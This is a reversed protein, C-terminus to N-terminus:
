SGAGGVAADAAPGFEAELSKLRAKDDATLLIRALGKDRAKELSRKAATKDGAALEAAALHLYKSATPQLLAEQLDEVAAANDGGALQVLGRTDLLDPLHGLEEIASDILRRAEAATGGKALHFALNNSVIASQSANLDGEELLDRYIKEAESDRGQLTRWEADLLLIVVSGPDVRKAKEIWDGVREFAPKAKGEDVQSRLVQIALSLARELSLSDWHDKILDLAEDTRGQRGLYEIRATVGAAALEAYREFVRDAAKQFGLDEMLMAVAQLQAPNEASAEGDPMLRRAFDIAQERNNEAMALKASLALTIASDPASRELRRLWTRATSAEGHEIMKEVLFAIYAPPTKPSAVIAVLENRAADWDGAKERLQARLLRNATSLPQRDGLMDLCQIARKWSVPEPRNSLLTIELNLDDLSIEDGARNEELRKLARELDRYTGRTGEMEVLARRAWPKTAAAIANDPAALIKELLERAEKARGKRIQFSALGRIAELDDPWGTAAEQLVQEADSFRNLMEYGQALALQRQPEPMLKAARELAIDATALSGIAVRHTFLALWVEPDESALESARELVDSAEDNKGSRALLQGLWLLDEHNQSDSAVSQKALAVAEDLNGARLEVEASIRELGQAGDNGLLAMADQAEELRNVSYLLAVLQRVVSPNVPGIEVAKRFREIAAAKNGRLGEVEGFLIQVQSWGGRENEAEILLNRAQDLMDRVDTPLEKIPETATKELEALRLRAELIKVRAEAVRTRASARGAIESIAVAASRAEEVEGSIVAMELIAERIGLSKPQKEAAQELLKKAAEREGWALRITVIANLVRVADEPPLSAARKEIDELRSQGEEPPQQFVVQSEILLLSPDNKVRDPIRGLLEEAAEPGETRLVLTILSAWIQPAAEETAVGELLDRAGQAEGRRILGEARLMAVQAPSATGTAEVSALLSDIGSWDQEAQPLETQKAIRLNLLPYWVQPIKPLDEAPLATAIAEFEALAEDNKGASILAQAAGTRAALSDPSEALIRRNIELQADYENLQAYCQGLYLDVQRVFEANGLLLPRIQELKAKADSWRRDAILLRAELLGVPGSTSGYMERIREIAQGAEVLKNQQLLIDTLMMQLSAKSPLKETGDLLLQEAAAVDGSQLFVVALGRYAREDEPFLEVARQGTTIAAELDRKALAMEFEAFVCDPNDPALSVAKATAAAAQELDGRERYWSTLALWARPEDAQQAVLAELVQKADAPSDLREQLIAALMVYAETDAQLDKVDDKFQRQSLDYGILRALIPGAEEFEGSGLFSRAKLLLVRRSKEDQEERSKEDDAPTAAFREELVTLHERADNARGIRLQFEALQQRLDDDTPNRRVAAELADFARGMDQRTADSSMARGLLLKSYEAFAEHDDPRLAVYQSLLLTADALRGEELRQEALERKSGANRSVQFRRLLYLGGFTLLLGTILILLLKFNIRRM